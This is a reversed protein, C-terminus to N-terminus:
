NLNQYKLINDYITQMTKVALPANQDYWSQVNTSKSSMLRPIIYSINTFGNFNYGFDYVCNNYIINLMDGSETDRTVKSTLLVDFYAPLTYQRSYAALLETVIGTREVDKCDAPIFMLGANNLSIYDTQAEDYKPFPLIGFDVDMARYKQAADSPANIEFLVQNKTFDMQLAAAKVADPEYAWCYSQHGNYILDYMKNVINVLKDSVTYLQPDDNQDKTAIYMNCSHMVGIMPGDMISAFGYMDNLDYIGDGNLDKSVAKAMTELKDWTWQGNKVLAYPDDLNYDALIGKNFFIADPDPIIYDSAAFLLINKIAITSNLSQNWYPKTLDVYPVKNWDMVYQGAILDGLDCMPHILVLDYAGDGALVSTKVKPLINKIGNDSDDGIEITNFKLNLQDEVSTNRKYVADNMADGTQTEAFFYNTYMGWHPYLINFSAGGYDKQPVDPPPFETTTQPADSAAESVNANNDTVGSNNNSNSQSCSSM